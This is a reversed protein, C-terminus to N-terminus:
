VAAGLAAAAFGLFLNLGLNVLFKRKEGKTLEQDLELALASWTTFAGCFGMGLFASNAQDSVLFIPLLFSGVVNVVLVGTFFQSKSQFLRVMLFRIPAGVASGVVFLLTRM